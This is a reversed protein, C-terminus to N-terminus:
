ADRDLAYRMLEVGMKQEVEPYVAPDLAGAGVPFNRKSAIVVTTAAGPKLDTISVPEGTGPDLTGIMDPFTAIRGTNFDVAMYENYIHLVAVDDPGAVTLYGADFGSGYGVTNETVEGTVLVRGKMFGAAAKAVAPGNRGAALMAKGLEIQFTIAGPAGYSRVHAATLPGRTAYILGGAQAAVAHMINSTKVINGQVVVSVREDGKTGCGAQTIRVEPRSALGMGGMKVTPHGRGNAAADVMPINLMAAQLWANMGPAHGCIVGAPEGDLMDILMRASEISDRPTVSHWTGGPAGVGTAVIIADDDALEDISVIEVEGYALAMEGIERHREIGTRGSGGASLFLGSVIAAELMDEDAKLRMHERAWLLGEPARELGEGVRRPERRYLVACGGAKLAEDLGARLQEHSGSGM